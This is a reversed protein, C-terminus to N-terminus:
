NNKITAIVREFVHRPIRITRYRRKYMKEPRELVLVGKACSFMRIITDRSFGSLMAAENVTLAAKCNISEITTLKPNM